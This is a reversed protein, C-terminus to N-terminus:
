LRENFYKTSFNIPFILKPRHSDIRLWLNYPAYIINRLSEKCFSVTVYFAIYCLLSKIVTGIMMQITQQRSTKNDFYRILETTNKYGNNINISTNINVIILNSAKSEISLQHKRNVVFLIGYKIIRNLGM